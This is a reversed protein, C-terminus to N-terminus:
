DEDIQQRAVLEAFFGKNAILEDYTGDEIIHGSDLVIIRDCQKITSLRHAIVIRTCDMADLADSVQKQTLNDLASTAEDFILIKPKPAIARAIMIRQRQGGSIGGQGESILTYMGMPMQRIDEDIGSLRAAEWADDVTLWPASIVINSYIDGMFLKGDQMVTGINRRLSKPDLSKLDRGDYYVSGKQPKEFGLLIRVLTSKGCGTKGVIAVYQGSNIKISLNDLVNPMDDRYRFTINNLEVTGNLKTVMTKDEDIEPITELIPKVMDLTPKIMAVSSAIGTLSMFAGSVMGFATNFAYYESISVGSKVAIFYMVMTGVLSIATGIVPSIKIILPPNYALDARASYLRGWRAFARKEAGSLRIKQIGSILAHCIGSEKAEYEMLQRSIGAQVLITVMSEAMTVLVIILAPAVLAPAYIFIQSIYTLSFLGTLGTQLVMNILMDSLSNVYRIRTALEGSSYKGFFDAPLTLIRMMSAAEVNIDLKTNIRASAFGKITTFILQSVTVSTMMIAIGILMRLNGSDLVTSFLMDNLRPLELGILTVCTLAAVLFAIDMSSIQGRLYKMLDTISMKKLPFPKYFALAEDSIIGENHRNLRVYRDQKVDYFRYGWFGYPMLAVVSGDDTRTGLMPGIADKYWGQELKVSRRMIGYPRMLYELVENMDTITEPVEKAKIRYFKLIEEIADTTIRRSDNLAESMRRGMIAGAIEIFSDEFASDDSERRQRIQGDFWGM